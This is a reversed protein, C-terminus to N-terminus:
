KFLMEIGNKKSENSENMHFNQSKRKPSPTSPILVMDKLAEYEKDISSDDSSMSSYKQSTTNLTGGKMTTTHSSKTSYTDTTDGKDTTHGIDILMERKVGLTSTARELNITDEKAFEDSNLDIVEKYNTINDNYKEVTSMFSEEDSMLSTDVKDKEEGKYSTCENTFWANVNPRDGLVPQLEDYFRCVTHKIKEHYNNYAEGELGGGTERLHDSAKYYSDLVRKIKTRISDV